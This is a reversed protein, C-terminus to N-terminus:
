ERSAAGRAAPRRAPCSSMPFTRAPPTGSRSPPPVHSFPACQADQHHVVIGRHDAERGGRERRVAEGVELVHRGATVGEQGGGPGVHQQEVLVQRVQGPALDQERQPRPGLRRAHHHHRGVAALGEGGVREPGPRLVVQDLVGRQGGHQRLHHLPHAPHSREALRQGGRFPFEQVDLAPRRDALHRDREVVLDVVGQHSGGGLQLQQEPALVRQGAGLALRQLRDPPHELPDPFDHLPRSRQPAGRRRLVRRAHLHDVQLRSGAARLATWPGRREDQHGLLARCAHELRQEAAGAVGDLPHRPGRRQYRGGLSEVHREHHRRLARERGVEGARGCRGYRRKM